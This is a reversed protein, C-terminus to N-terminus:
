TDHTINGCVEDENIEKEDAGGRDLDDLDLHHDHDANCFYRHLMNLLKQMRHEFSTLQNNVKGM